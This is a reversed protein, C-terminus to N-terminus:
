VVLGKTYLLARASIDSNLADKVGQLLATFAEFGYHQDDADLTFLKSSPCVYSASFGITVDAEEPVAEAMSMSPHYSTYVPVDPFSQKLQAISEWEYEMIADSLLFSIEVGCLALAMAIEFPSGNVGIGVGVRLGKLRRRWQSISDMCSEYCSQWSVKRELFTELGEYGRRIGEPHYRIFEKHWPIGLHREMEQCAVRGFPKILLNHSSHRMEMFQEFTQCASLQLVKEFGAENMLSFFEGNPNIPSFHGVVNLTDKPVRTNKEKCLFDYLSRQINLAPPMSSNATIPNMHCDVFPLGYRETLRLCLNKYDSALLDDICSACIFFAPPRKPLCSLIDEVVAPIRDMHSGLVLDEETIDMYRIRSRLGLQVSSVSGHRGCGHPAVFLLVSEPVLMATRVIGWGGASPASYHLCPGSVVKGKTGLEPAAPDLNAITLHYLEKKM